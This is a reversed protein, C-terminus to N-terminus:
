KGAKGTELEEFVRRPIKVSANCAGCKMLVFDKEAGGEKALKRGCACVFGVLHAPNGVVLGHAPVDRTVVAGAGIMAWEGVEQCVLVASAGVSAGKKIRTKLVIWDSATKLSGNANIARPYKDNAICAHPGIFVGDELVAGYYISANNQVKCNDGITVDHDVYVNKSIVCNRGIVANERVQAQNWVKTGVSIRAKPSVEATAHIWCSTQKVAM